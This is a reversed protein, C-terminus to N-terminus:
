YTYQVKFTGFCLDILADIYLTFSGAAPVTVMKWSAGAHLHSELDNDVTSDGIIFAQVRSAPTISADTIVVTASATPTAGVDITATGFQAGSATAEPTQQPLPAALLLELDSKIEVIAGIAENATAQATASAILATEVVNPAISDVVSFLSEFQKISEPDKLFSSLQNRTLRLNM